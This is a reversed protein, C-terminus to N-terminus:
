NLLDDLWDDLNNKTETKIQTQVPPAKNFTLEPANITKTTTMPVDVVPSPEATKTDGLAILKDLLDIDDSEKTPVQSTATRTDRIPRESRTRIQRTNSTNQLTDVAKTKQEVPAKETPKNSPAVVEPTATPLKPEQTVYLTEDDDDSDSVVEEQTNKKVQQPETYLTLPVFDLTSLTQTTPEPQTTSPLTDISMVPDLIDHFHELHLRQEVSLLSLSKHLQATDIFLISAGEDLESTDWEREWPKKIYASASSDQMLTNLLRVQEKRQKLADIELFKDGTIEVNSAEEELDYEDEDESSRDEFRYANSIIERKEYTRKNQDEDTAVQERTQGPRRFAGRMPVHAQGTSAFHKGAYNKRHDQHKKNKIHKKSPKTNPKESM